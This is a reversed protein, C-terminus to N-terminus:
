GEGCVAQVAQGVGLLGVVVALGYFAMLSDVLGMILSGLASSVLGFIVISRRGVRDTLVGGIMSGALGAVSFLGLLVGAETMGVDFRSTVYLAFYPFLVTGGLRDVFTAFVLVRFSVPFAQYTSRFRTLM